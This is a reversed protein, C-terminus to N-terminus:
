TGSRLARRKSFPIKEGASAVHRTPRRREVQRAKRAAVQRMDKVRRLDLVDQQHRAVPIRSKVSILEELGIWNVETKGYRSRVRTKWARDFSVGEVHTLLDVRNPPLGVQLVQGAVGVDLLHPSGFEALAGNVRNVNDADDAVWVDLDKTYRPKVHFVFAVGGIVLYRVRHKEFLALMDEFDPVTKMRENM